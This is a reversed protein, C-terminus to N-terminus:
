KSRGTVHPDIGLLKAPNRRAMMDIEEATIGAARLMDLFKKWGEPLMPHYPQGLDGSLICHAAGFRHIAAVYAEFSARKAAPVTPLVQNACFELWAGADVAERMQQQTMDVVNFLPHTIVIREIRLERGARALLVAEAGSAHGTALALKYRAITKLVEIVEPVLRGDRALVIHPRDEKAFLVQNEADYTPMWVLRLNGGRTEAARAIAEPNLGGVARNLAISSFIEIGGVAKSVAYALQMTPSYHSKLLLGRMGADRALRAADIADVKRPVTDPDAHVHIDIIGEVQASACSAAFLMLTALRM